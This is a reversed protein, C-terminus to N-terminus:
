KASYVVFPSHRLCPRRQRRPGVGAVFFRNRKAVGLLQPQELWGVLDAFDRLLDVRRGHEILETNVFDLCRHNGVM